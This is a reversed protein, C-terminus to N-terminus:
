ASDPPGAVALGRPLARWLLAYARVTDALQSPSRRAIAFLLRSVPEVFLTGLTLLTAVWANFHKHAYLIRSTLSYYLSTARARESSGGGKHYVQVDALYFSDFGIRKARLSFDLDELYVFFREDFGGLREFLTRRVLFFAGM